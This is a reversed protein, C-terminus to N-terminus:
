GDSFLFIEFESALANEWCKQMLYVYKRVNRCFVGFLDECVFFLSFLVVHYILYRKNYNLGGIVM